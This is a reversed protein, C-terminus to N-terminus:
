EEARYYYDNIFEPDDELINALVSHIKDLEDWYDMVGPHWYDYAISCRPDPFIDDADKGSKTSKIFSLKKSLGHIYGPYLFHDHDYEFEPYDEDILNRKCYRHLAPSYFEAIKVIVERVSSNAYIEAVTEGNNKITLATKGPVVYKYIINRM